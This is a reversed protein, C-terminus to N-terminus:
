SRPDSFEVYRYALEITEVLLNSEQSKLDSVNWKVPYAKVFSWNMSSQGNADLLSLMLDKTEIPKAMGGTMTQKCWTVLPSASPLIGRKLVLNQYSVPGPLRYKFRNEGGSAVEEVGLEAGLGSVEQFAADADGPSNLVSLSFYFGTLLDPM